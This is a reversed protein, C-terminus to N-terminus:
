DRPSPSTYLLCCVYMNMSDKFFIFGNLKMRCWKKEGKPNLELSTSFNTNEEAPFSIRLLFYRKIRSLFYKINDGKNYFSILSIKISRSLFFKFSGIGILHSYM